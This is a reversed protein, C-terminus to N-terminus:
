VGSSGFGNAGRSTETEFESVVNVEPTVIPAIVMQAIKDGKRILYTGEYIRVDNDIKGRGDITKYYNSQQQVLRVGNNSARFEVAKQNINDVMVGINGRYPQDITGIPVRLKTKSTIGSRPRVTAEYGPALSIAIDTKVIVSEGPAIIVDEAAYLDLGSDTPYARTPVTANESLLKINITNM